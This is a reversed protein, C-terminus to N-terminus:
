SFYAKLLQNERTRMRRQEAAKKDKYGCLHLAGHFVVRHLEEQITVGLHGANDRVRDTSIYIEGSIAQGPESFDFTIIDTYYNHNLYDKNIKLLRADSCFIYNLNSLRRNETKFIQSIFKKLRTRDTLPINKHEFFFQVQM